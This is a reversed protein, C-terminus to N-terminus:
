RQVGGTDATGRAAAWGAKFGAHEQERVSRSVSVGYEKRYDSWATAVEVEESTRLVFQIRGRNVRFFPLGLAGSPTELVVQLEHERHELLWDSWAGPNLRVGPVGDERKVAEIDPGGDEDTDCWLHFTATM